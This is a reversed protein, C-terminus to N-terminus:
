LRLRTDMARGETRDERVVGCTLGGIFLVHESFVQETTRSMPTLSSMGAAAPPEGEVGIGGGGCIAGVALDNVAGPPLVPFSRRSRGARLRGPGARSGPPSSGGWARGMGVEVRSRPVVVGAAPVAM